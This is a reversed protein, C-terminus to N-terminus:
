VHQGGEVHQYDRDNSPLNQDDEIWWGCTRFIDSISVVRGSELRLYRIKHLWIRELQRICRMDITNCGDDGFLQEVWDMSRTAGAHAIGTM